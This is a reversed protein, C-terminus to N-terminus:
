DQAAAPAPPAASKTEAGAPAPPPAAPKPRLTIVTKCQPCRVNLSSKGRLVALPVRMAAQCKTCLVRISDTPTPPPAPAAPHSAPAPKPPSATQKRASQVSQSWRMLEPERASQGLLRLRRTTYM